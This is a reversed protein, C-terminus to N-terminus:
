DDDPDGYQIHRSEALGTPCPQSSWELLKGKLIPLLSASVM